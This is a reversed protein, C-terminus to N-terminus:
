YTGKELVFTLIYATVFLALVVAAGILVAKKSISISRAKKLETSPTLTAAAAEGDATLAEGETVNEKVEAKEDNPQIKEDDPM